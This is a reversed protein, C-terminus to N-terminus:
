ILGQTLKQQMYLTQLTVMLFTPMIVCATSHLAWCSGIVALGQQLQPIVAASQVHQMM